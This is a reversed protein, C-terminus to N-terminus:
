AVGVGCETTLLALATQWKADVSQPDVIRGQELARYGAGL